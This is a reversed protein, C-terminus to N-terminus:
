AVERIRIRECAGHGVLTDSPGGYHSLGVRVTTPFGVLEFMELEVWGVDSELESGAPRWYWTFVDDIRVVRIDGTLDAEPEVPYVSTSDVTYKTEIGRMGNAGDKGFGGHTSLPNGGRASAPDVYFVFFEWQGGADEPMPDEEDASSRMTMTARMDFDAPTPITAAPGIEVDCGNGLREFAPSNGFRWSHTLDVGTNTGDGGGLVAECHLAEDRIALEAWAAPRLTDLGRAVLSTAGERFDLRADLFAFADM